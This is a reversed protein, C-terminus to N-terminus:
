QKNLGLVGPNMLGDPDLTEKLAQILEWSTPNILKDEYPYFKGIQLHIGGFQRSFEV